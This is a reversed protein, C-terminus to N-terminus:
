RGRLRARLPVYHADAHAMPQTEVDIQPLPHPVSVEEEEGNEASNVRKQKFAIAADDEKTLYYALFHDGESEIPRLIACDLRPDDVQECV